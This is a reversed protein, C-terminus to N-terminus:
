KEDQITQRQRGATAEFNGHGTEQGSQKKEGKAM